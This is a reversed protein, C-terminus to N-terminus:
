NFKHWNITKIYKENGTNLNNKSFSKIGIKLENILEIFLRLITIKNYLKDFIEMM